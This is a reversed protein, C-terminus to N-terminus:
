DENSLEGGIREDLSLEGDQNELEKRNSPHYSQIKDPLSILAIIGRQFFQNDVLRKLLYVPLMVCVGYFLLWPWLISVLLNEFLEYSDGYNHDKM